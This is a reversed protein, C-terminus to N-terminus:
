QCLCVRFGQCNDKFYASPRVLNYSTVIMNEITFNVIDMCFCGIWKVGIDRIIFDKHQTHALRNQKVPMSM